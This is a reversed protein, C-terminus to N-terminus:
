QKENSLQVFVCISSKYKYQIKIEEDYNRNLWVNEYRKTLTKHVFIHISVKLTLFVAASQVVFRPYRSCRECHDFAGLKRREYM